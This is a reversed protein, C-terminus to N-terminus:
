PPSLIGLIQGDFQRPCSGFRAHLALRTVALLRSANAFPSQGVIPRAVGSREARPTPTASM